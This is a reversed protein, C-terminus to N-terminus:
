RTQGIGRLLGVERRLGAGQGAQVVAVDHRGEVGADVAVAAGVADVFERGALGEVRARDFIVEAYREGGLDRAGHGVRVRPSAWPM